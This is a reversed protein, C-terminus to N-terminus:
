SATRDAELELLNRHPTVGPRRRVTDGMRGLPVHGDRDGELAGISPGDGWLSSAVLRACSCTIQTLGHLSMTGALERSYEANDLM